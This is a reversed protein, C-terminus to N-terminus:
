SHLGTAGDKDGRTFPCKWDSGVARGSYQVADSLIGEFNLNPNMQGQLRKDRTRILQIMRDLHGVERLLDFQWVPNFVLTPCAVRRALRSARPHLGVVYFARGGFSFKFDTSDPDPSYRPDWPATDISHLARLVGWTYEEFEIENAISTVSDTAALVSFRSLPEGSNEELFLTLREALERVSSPHRLDSIEVNVLTGQNLSAKAGLCPFENGAILQRVTSHVSESASNKGNGAM